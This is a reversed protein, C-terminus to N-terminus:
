RSALSIRGHRIFRSGVYGFTVVMSVFATFTSLMFSGSVTSVDFCAIAFATSLVGGGIVLRSPVVWGRACGVTYLAAAWASLSTAMVMWTLEPALGEYHAGLVWLIQGPFAMSLVTLVLVLGAFFLNVAAFGWRLEAPDHNRAFHPQIVAGMVAGIIAFVAGLRGLAGVQAVTDATGFIGVLWVAVQSSLVYYLSNPAQRAVFHILEARHERTPVGPNGIQTAVYRRLAVFVAAAALANLASALTANLAVGAILVLVLVKGANTALDLKQQFALHGSLRALSLAIANRV